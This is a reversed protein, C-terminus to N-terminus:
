IEQTTAPGGTGTDDGTAVRKMVDTAEWGWIRPFQTPEFRLCTLMEELEGALMDTEAISMSPAYRKLYRKWDSRTPNARIRLRALLGPTEFLKKISKDHAEGSSHFQNKKTRELNENKIISYAAYVEASAWPLNVIGLPIAESGGLGLSYLFKTGRKGEAGFRLKTPSVSIAQLIGQSADHNERTGPSAYYIDIMTGRLTDELNCMIKMATNAGEGVLHLQEDMAIADGASLFELKHPLDQLDISLRKRIAEVGERRVHDTLGNHREMLALMCSSKGFGTPGAFELVVNGGYRRREQVQAHLLHTIDRQMALSLRVAESLWPKDSYLQARERHYLEFLPPCQYGDTFANGMLADVTDSLEAYLGTHEEESIQGTIKGVLFAVRSNPISTTM